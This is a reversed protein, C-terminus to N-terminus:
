QRLARCGESFGASCAKQLMARARTMDRPVGRGEAYKRALSYCGMGLGADCTKAYLAVAPGDGNPVDEYILALVVCADGEGGDCAQKLLEARRSESQPVGKGDHYLSALNNCGMAYGGECARQYLVAARSSDQALGTGRGYLVGLYSCSKPDHANCGRRTLVAAQALDKEVGLGEATWIGLEGCDVAKGAACSKKLVRVREEPPICQGNGTLGPRITGKPCPPVLPHYKFSRNKLSELTEMLEFDGLLKNMGITLRAANVQGCGRIDGGECAQQFFALGRRKDPSVGLGRTYIDGVDTCATAAIGSSCANQSLALAPDFVSAAKYLNALDACATAIGAECARRDLSAARAYNKPVGQGMILMSALGACASPDRAACDKEYLAFAKTFLLSPGAEAAAEAAEKMPGLMDGGGMVNKVGQVKINADVAVMICARAVGNECTKNAEPPVAGTARGTWLAECGAVSGHTCANGYAEGAGPRSIPGGIGRERAYGLNYCDSASGKECGDQYTSLAEAPDACSTGSARISGDSRFPRLVVDPAPCRRLSAPHTQGLALLSARLTAPDFADSDSDNASQPEAEDGARASVQLCCFAALFIFLACRRSM